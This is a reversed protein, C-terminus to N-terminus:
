GRMDAESVRGRTANLRASSNRGYRSLARLSRGAAPAAERNALQQILEAPILM